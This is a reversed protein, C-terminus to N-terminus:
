SLDAAGSRSVGPILAVAKAVGLVLAEPVTLSDETRRRSGVRESLLLM